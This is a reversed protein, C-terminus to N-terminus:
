PLARFRSRRVVPLRPPLGLFGSALGAHEVAAM